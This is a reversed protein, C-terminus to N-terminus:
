IWIVYPIKFMDPLGGGNSGFSAGLPENLRAQARCFRHRRIYHRDHALKDMSGNTFLHPFIALQKKNWIFNKIKGNRVM